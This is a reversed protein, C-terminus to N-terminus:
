LKYIPMVINLINFITSLLEEGRKKKIEKKRKRREKKM